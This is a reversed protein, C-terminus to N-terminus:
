SFIKILASKYIDKSINIPELSIPDYIPYHISVAANIELIELGFVESMIIDVCAFRINIAKAARVALEEMENSHFLVYRTGPFRNHKWQLFVKEDKNPVYQLNNFLSNDFLNKSRADIDANEKIFNSLLEIISSKGDGIIFPIMKEYCLLSKGDLIINRFERINKRFPSLCLTISDNYCKYITNELERENNLLFVGEGRSSDNKKLVLPFGNENIFRKIIDYNGIDIKRRELVSPNYLVHHPVNSVNSLSLIESCLDKSRAIKLSVCDNLPLTFGVIYKTINNKCLKIAWNDSFHFTEIGLESSAEDILKIFQQNHM